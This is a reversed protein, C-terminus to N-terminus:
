SLLSQATRGAMASWDCAKRDSDLAQQLADWWYEDPRQLAAMADTLEDVRPFGAAQEAAFAAQSIYNGPAEIDILLQL